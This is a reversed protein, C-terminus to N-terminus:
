EGVARELVQEFRSKEFRGRADANALSGRHTFTRGALSGLAARAAAAERAMGERTTLDVLARISTMASEVAHVFGEFVGEKSAVEVARSERLYRIRRKVHESDMLRRGVHVASKANPKVKAGASTLNSGAAILQCFQEHYGQPLPTSGDYDGPVGRALYGEPLRAKATM